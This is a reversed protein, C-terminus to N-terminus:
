TLSRTLNMPEGDRLVMGPQIPVFQVEEDEILGLMMDPDADRYDACHVRWAALLLQNANETTDALCAFDFNRTTVTALVM